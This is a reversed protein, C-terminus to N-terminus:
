VPPLHREVQRGLPSSDGFQYKRKPFIIFRLQTVKLVEKFRPHTGNVNPSIKADICQDHGPNDSVCTRNKGEFGSGIGENNKLV